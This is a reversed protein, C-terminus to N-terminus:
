KVTFKKKYFFQQEECFIFGSSLLAKCSSINEKEPQVIIGVAANKAFIESILLSIMEVGHGKGLQTEEGILYDISYTGTLPIGEYWNEKADACTYYQCFGIPSGDLLLIFHTIFNYGQFRGNIETLWANPHEYWKAIHEKCLWQQILPIDADTLPRLQLSNM